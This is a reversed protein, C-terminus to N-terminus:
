IPSNAMKEGWNTWLTSLHTFDRQTKSPPSLVSLLKIQKLTAFLCLLKQKVPVPWLFSVIGSHMATTSLPHTKIQMYIASLPSKWELAPTSELVWASTHVCECVHVTTTHCSFHWLCLQQLCFGKRSSDQMCSYLTCIPKVTKVLIVQFRSTSVDNGTFQHCLFVNNSHHSLETMKVSYFYVSYPWLYTSCTWRFVVVCWYAHRRPLKKVLHQFVSAPIQEWESPGFTLTICYM